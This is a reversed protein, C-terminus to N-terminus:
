LKCCHLPWVIFNQAIQKAQRQKTKQLMSKEWRSLSHLLDRTRASVICFLCCCCCFHFINMLNFDNLFEFINLAHAKLLYIIRMQHACLAFLFVCFSFYFNLSNARSIFVCMARECVCVCAVSYIM